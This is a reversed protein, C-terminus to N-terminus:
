EHAGMMLSMDWETQSCHEGRESTEGMKFIGCCGGKKM